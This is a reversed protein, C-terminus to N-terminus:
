RAISQKAQARVSPFIAGSPCIVWKRDLGQRLFIGTGKRGLDGAYRGGDRRAMLPTERDDRVHLAPHSPRQRASLSRCMIRVAFVRPGSAGVSADLQRFCNRKAVTAFLGPRRPSRPILRLGDRPSHRTIGTHGHHSAQTSEIRQVCPQPRMSRGANGAGENEFPPVDIAFRARFV